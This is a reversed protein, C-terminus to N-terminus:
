TTEPLLDHRGLRRADPLDAANFGIDILLQRNRDFAELTQCPQTFAALVGRPSAPVKRERTAFYQVVADWAEDHGTRPPLPREGDYVPPHRPPTVLHRLSGRATIAGTGALDLAVAAAELLAEQVEPRLYEYPRWVNLGARRHHSAERWIRDMMRARTSTGSPIALSLEDLLARLLRFWVGAHVTVTLMVKGTTLAQWTRRDMAIAAPDAQRHPLPAGWLAASTIQHEAELRCGHDPCSLMLPLAAALPVGQGPDRTCDPCVRRQWAKRPVQPTLSRGPLWPRWDEIHNRSARGPAPLVSDQRVYTHFAEPGGFPDLADLLWPVWGAITMMRLDGISTGTREALAELLQAPPDVDLDAREHLSKGGTLASGLADTLLLAATLGYCAALRDIWSSLAEGPAPLPHLPWRRVPEARVPV